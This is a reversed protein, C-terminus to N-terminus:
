LKEFSPHNSVFFYSNAQIFREAITIFDEIDFIKITGSGISVEKLKNNRQLEKEVSYLKLIPNLELSRVFMKYSKTSFNENDIYTGTFTKWYRYPVELKEEVWHIMSVSNFDAGLLIIKGKLEKLKDFPSNPCFSSETDNQIIVNSQSGVLAISQMPHFSRIAQPLKRVFESFAGMNKAPTQQRNFAVGKCFDFNFTPVAITGDKGIINNLFHFLHSPVESIKCDTPIGFSLLSNHVLLVDGENIGLQSFKDPFENIKFKIM